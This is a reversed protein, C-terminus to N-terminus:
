FIYQINTHNNFLPFRSGEGPEAPRGFAKRGKKRVAGWFGLDSLRTGIIRIDLGLGFGLSQPLKILDNPLCSGSNKGHKCFHHITAFAQPYFITILLTDGEERGAKRGGGRDKSGTSVSKQPTLLYIAKTLAKSSIPHTAPIARYSGWFFLFLFLEPVYLSHSTFHAPCIDSHIPCEQPPRDVTSLCWTKALTGM